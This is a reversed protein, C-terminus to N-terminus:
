NLAYPQAAYQRFEQELRYLSPFLNGFQRTLASDFRAGHSLEEILKLFRTKDKAALFRVLKESQRYFTAVQVADNPYSSWGTLHVLPIFMGEPIVSSVPRANYGRARLYTAYCKVATFEAFGEHMWLPVGPGMFRYTVLHAIEHALTTGKFKAAPDRYLFLEGQAHLGGTWPELGGTAKLLRWDAEQDFVFIHCKREWRTTDKGLEAAIVRYYVEAEGSLGAALGESFFHFIFHETEAHKWDNPRIALAARGLGLLNRDSLQEYPIARFPASQATAPVALQQLGIVLLALTHAARM